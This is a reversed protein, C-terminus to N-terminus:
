LSMNLRRRAVSVEALSSERNANVNTGSPRSPANPIRMEWPLTGQGQPTCARPRQTSGPSPPHPTDPM